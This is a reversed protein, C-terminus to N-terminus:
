TEKFDKFNGMLLREYLQKLQGSIESNDESHAPM